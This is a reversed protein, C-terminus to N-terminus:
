STPRVRVAEFLASAGSARDRNAAFDGVITAPLGASEALGRAHRNAAEAEEPSMPVPIFDRRRLEVEVTQQGLVCAPDATGTAIFEIEGTGDRLVAVMGAGGGGIVQATGVLIWPETATGDIVRAVTATAGLPQLEAPSLGEELRKWHEPWALPEFTDLGDLAYTPGGLRLELIEGFEPRRGLREMETAAFEFAFRLSPYIECMGSYENQVLWLAGGHLDGIGLEVCLLQQYGYGLPLLAKPHHFPEDMLMSYTAACEAPGQIEVGCLVDTIPGGSRVRWFRLVEEPIRMPRVLSEIESIDRESAAPLLSAGWYEDAYTTALLELREVAQEIV